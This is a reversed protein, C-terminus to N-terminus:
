CTPWQRLRSPSKAQEEPPVANENEGAEALDMIRAGPCTSTPAECRPAGPEGAFGPPIEIGKGKLFEVAEKLFETQNHDKLHRLHAKIVNKGQKVVNEMVKKEDYEEAEREEISIAGQPCNGICAGLGDCFLDSVLRAKGDIVQLAGEPCEPICEGCGDCKEEDIRIIKRKM